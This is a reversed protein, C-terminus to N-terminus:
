DLLGALENAYDASFTDLFTKRGFSPRVQCPLPQRSTIIEVSACASRLPGCMKCTIVTDCALITGFRVGVLTKKGLGSVGM